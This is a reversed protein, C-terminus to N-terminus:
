ARARDLGAPAVYSQGARAKELAEVQHQYLHFPQGTPTRFIQATEERLIGRRAAPSITYRTQGRENAHFGHGADLDTWGYCALVACDMAAHLERLRAIDADACQPNHFLNHTKTLGLQRALLTQRRHEHYAEGVREASSPSSGPM